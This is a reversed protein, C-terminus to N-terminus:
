HKHDHTEKSPHHFDSSAACLGPMAPCRAADAHKTPRGKRSTSYRSLRRSPRRLRESLPVAPGPIPKCPPCAFPRETFVPAVEASAARTDRLFVQLGVPHNLMPHSLWQMMDQATLATLYKRPPQMVASFAKGPM